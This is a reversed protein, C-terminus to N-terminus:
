GLAQELLQRHAWTWRYAAEVDQVVGAARLRVMAPDGADAATDIGRRCRDQWWLVTDVLAGRDRLGYADAIVRVNRAAEGPDTTRPSLGAYQWCM